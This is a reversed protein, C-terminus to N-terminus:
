VVKLCKILTDIMKKIDMSEYIVYRESDEYLGDRSSSYQDMHYSKSSDRVMEDIINFRDESGSCVDDEFELAGLPHSCFDNRYENLDSCKVYIESSDNYVFKSFVTGCPMSLFEKRNVIRM